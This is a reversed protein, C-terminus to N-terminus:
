IVNQKQFSICKQVLPWENVIALQVHFIIAPWISQWWVTFVCVLLGFPVCGLIERRSKRAHLVMYLFVNIVIAWYIGLSASLVLLLLGRFFWEYIVLFVTRLFTYSAIRLAPQGSLYKAVTVENSFKKWPLLSILAFVLLFGALQAVTIKDPFQLLFKGARIICSTALMLSILLLHFYNLERLGPRVNNSTTLREFAVVTMLM